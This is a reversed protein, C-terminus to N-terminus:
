SILKRSENLAFYNSIATNVQFQLEKAMEGRLMRKYLFVIIIMAVLLVLVVVVIISLYSRKQEIIVPQPRLTKCEEPLNIYSSCVAEFANM